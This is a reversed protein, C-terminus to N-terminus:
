GRPLRLAAFLAEASFPKDLFAHLRGSTLAGEVWEPSRGSMLVRRAEPMRAAVHGLLIEGRMGPMDEDSLVCACARRALVSLAEAGSAVCTPHARGELLLAIARLMLPEDDVVLVDPLAPGTASPLPQDRGKSQERKEVNTIIVCIDKRRVNGM